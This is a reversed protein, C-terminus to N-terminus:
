AQPLQRWLGQLLFIASCSRLTRLAAGGRTVSRILAIRCAGIFEEMLLPTEGAARSSLLQQLDADAVLAGVSMTNFSDDLLTRLAEFRAQQAIERLLIPESERSEGIHSMSPQGAVGDVSDRGDPSPVAADGLSDSGVSEMSERPAKVEESEVSDRPVKGELEGGEVQEPLAVSTPSADDDPWPAPTALQMSLPRATRKLRGKMVAAERVLQAYDFLPRNGFRRTPKHSTSSRWFCFVNGLRPPRSIRCCLMWTGWGMM